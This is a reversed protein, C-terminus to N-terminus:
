TNKRRRPSKNRLRYAIRVEEVLSNVDRIFAESEASPALVQTANALMICKTYLVNIQARIVVSNEGRSMESRTESEQSVLAEFRLNQRELEDLYPKLGLTEVAEQFEEKKLDMVLGKIVETKQNIPLRGIGKYPTVTNKLAHGAAHEEELLLSGSNLVRGLIYVAVSSRERDVEKREPTTEQARSERNLETMKGLLTEIEAVSESPINVPSAGRSAPILALFRRMFNQYESNNLMRMDYRPIQYFLEM